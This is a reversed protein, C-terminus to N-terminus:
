AVNNSFIILDSFMSSTDVFRNLGDWFATFYMKQLNAIEGNKLAANFENNTEGESGVLEDLFVILTSGKIQEM